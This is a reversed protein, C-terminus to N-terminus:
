SNTIHPNSNTIHPNSNTTHTNRSKLNLNLVTRSKLNLNITHHRSHKKNLHINMNLNERM